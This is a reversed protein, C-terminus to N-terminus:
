ANKLAEIENSTLGPLIAELDIEFPFNDEYIVFLNTFIAKYKAEIIDDKKLREIKDVGEGGEIVKIHVHGKFKSVVDYEKKDMAIVVVAKNAALDSRCLLEILKNEDEMVRAAPIIIIEELSNYLQTRAPVEQIREQEAVAEKILKRTDVNNISAWKSLGAASAYGLEKAVETVSPKKGDADFRRKAIRRIEEIREAKDIRRKDKVVVDEGEQIGPLVVVSQMDSPEPVYSDLGSMQIFEISNHTGNFGNGNKKAAEVVGMEILGDLGRNDYDLWAWVTELLLFDGKKGYVKAISAKEIISKLWVTITTDSVRFRVALQKIKWPYDKSLDELLLMEKETLKIRPLVAVDSGRNDVFGEEEIVPPALVTAMAKSGEPLKEIKETRINYINFDIRHLWLLFERSEYMVDLFSVIKEDEIQDILDQFDHREADTVNLGFARKAFIDALGCETDEDLSIGAKSVLQHFIEHCHIIGKLKNDAEQNRAPDEDDFGLGPFEGKLLGRAQELDIVIEDRTPDYYGYYVSDRKLWRQEVPEGSAEDMVGNMRTLTNRNGGPVRLYDNSTPCARYWESREPVPCAYLTTNCLFVMSVIVAVTKVNFHKIFKVM